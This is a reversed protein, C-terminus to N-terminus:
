KLQIRENKNIADTMQQRLKELLANVDDMNELFSKNAPLLDAIKIQRVPRFKPAPEVNPRSGSPPPPPPVAAAIRGFETFIGSALREAHQSAQAM